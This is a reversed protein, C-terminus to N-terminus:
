DLFLINEMRKTKIMFIIVIKKLNKTFDYSENNLSQWIMEGSTIVEMFHKPDFGLKPLRKITTEKRKSSNSIIIIEKKEQYLKEVCKIAQIYGKKGMM